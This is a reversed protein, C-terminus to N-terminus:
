KGKFQPARRQTFAEFAEKLDESPLMAANKQAVYELGPYVGHDRSFLIVDKSGQVALPSLAAIEIALEEAAKYLSEREEFIRTVLGM